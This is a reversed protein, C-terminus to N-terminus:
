LQRLDIPDIKCSNWVAYPKSCASSSAHLDVLYYITKQRKNKKKKKQPCVTDPCQLCSTSWEVQTNEGQGPHM